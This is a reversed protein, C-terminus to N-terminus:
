PVLRVSEISDWEPSGPQIGTGLFVALIRQRDLHILIRRPGTGGAGTSDRDTVVLAEYFARGAIRQERLIGHPRDGESRTQFPEPGVAAVRARMAAVVVSDPGAGPAMSVRAYGAVVFCGGQDSARVGTEPVEMVVRKVRCFQVGGLPSLPFDDLLDTVRGRPRNAGALLGTDSAAGLPYQANPSIPYARWRGVPPVVTFFAAAYVDRAEAKEAAPLSVAHPVCALVSFPILLMLVPCRSM